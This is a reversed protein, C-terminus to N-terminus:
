RNRTIELEQTFNLIRSFEEMSYERDEAQWRKAKIKKETIETIQYRHNDTKIFDGESFEVGLQVKNSM